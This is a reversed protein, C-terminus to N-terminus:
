AWDRRMRYSCGRSYIISGGSLGRAKATYLDLCPAWHLPCTGQVAGLLAIEGKAQIYGRAGCLGSPREGVGLVWNRKQSIPSIFGRVVSQCVPPLVLRMHICLSKCLTASLIDKIAPPSLSDRPYVRTHVSVGGNQTNICVISLPHQIKDSQCLLTRDADM